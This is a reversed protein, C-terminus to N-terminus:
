VPMLTDSDAGGSSETTLARVVGWGRLKVRNYFTNYSVMPNKSSKYLDVVAYLSGGFEIQNKSDISGLATEPEWEFFAVRLYFIKFTVSPDKAATYYARLSEKMAPDTQTETSGCGPVQVPVPAPHVVPIIRFLDKLISWFNRLLIFINDM